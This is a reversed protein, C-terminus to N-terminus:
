QPRSLRTLMFMGCIIDTVRSVNGPVFHGDIVNGEPLTWRPTLGPVPPYLRLSEEIVANLYPLRAVSTFTISGESQFASRVEDCVKNLARQNMLLYYTARSLLTATTESGAIIFMRANANIEGSTMGVGDNSGPIYSMFDKKEAKAALRKQLAAQTYETHRRRAENISPFLRFAHPMIARLIPYATGFSLMTSTKIGKFVNSIWFHYDGSELSGFPQSLALDSIIDFTAFTYWRVLDVENGMPDQIRSKLRQILLDIYGMILPEQERMARESFAPSFLGRMKAHDADGIISTLRPAQEEAFLFNNKPLQLRGPLYGYIDKWSQTTDFSLTNPNIRVVHGYHHHIQKTSLPGNGRCMAWYHPIFTGAHLKPGPFKALPHWYINYVIQGCLYLLWQCLILM